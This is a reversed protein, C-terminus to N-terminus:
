QGFKYITKEKVSIIQGEYTGDKHLDLQLVAPTKNYRFESNPQADGTDYLSAGGTGIIIQQLGKDDKKGDSTQPAFVEAHHDHGTIMLKAKKSAILLDWFKKM